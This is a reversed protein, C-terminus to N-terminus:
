QSRQPPHSQGDRNSSKSCHNLNNVGTTSILISLPKQHSLAEGPSGSSLLFNLTQNSPLTLSFCFSVKISKRRDFQSHGSHTTLVIQRGSISPCRRIRTLDFEGFTHSSPKVTALCILYMGGTAGALRDFKEYFRWAMSGRAQERREICRTPEM